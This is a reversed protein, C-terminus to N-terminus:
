ENKKGEIKSKVRTSIFSKEMLWSLVINRIVESDSLGMEGKLAQLLEYQEQTFIVQIRKTEKKTSM